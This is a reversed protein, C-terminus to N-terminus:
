YICIFYKSRSTDSHRQLGNTSSFFILFYKKKKVDANYFACYLKEKLSQEPQQAELAPFPKWSNNSGSVTHVLRQIIDQSYSSNKSHKNQCPHYHTCHSSSDYVNKQSPLTQLLKKNSFINQTALSSHTVSSENEKMFWRIRQLFDQFSHISSPEKMDHCHELTPPLQCTEKKPFTLTTDQHTDNTKQISGVSVVASDLFPINKSSEMCTEMSSSSTRYNFDHHLTKSPPKSAYETTRSNFQWEHQPSTTYPPQQTFSSTNILSPEMSHNSPEPCEEPQCQFSRLHPPCYLSSANAQCIQTAHMGNDKLTECTVTDDNATQLPTTIKEHHTQCQKTLTNEEQRKNCGKDHKSRLRPKGGHRENKRHAKTGNPVTETKSPNNGAHSDNTEKRREQKPGLAGLSNRPATSQHYFSYLHLLAAHGSTSRLCRAPSCHPSKSGHPHNPRDAFCVLKWLLDFGRFARLEAELKQLLGYSDTIHNYELRIWVPLFEQRLRDPRPYVFLRSDQSNKQNFCAQGISKFLAEAGILRIRNHSLHLEELASSQTQILEALALAGNDSICNKYVKLIRLRLYPSYSIFWKALREVGKCTLQNESLDLSVFFVVDSAVIKKLQTSTAETAFAKSNYLTSQEFKQVKRSSGKLCHRSSFPMNSSSALLSFISAELLDILHHIDNDRLSVNKLNVHVNCSFSVQHNWQSELPNMFGSAENTYNGLGERSVKSGSTRKKQSSNNLFLSNKFRKIQQFSITGDSNCWGLNFSQHMDQCTPPPLTVCEPSTPELPYCPDLRVASPPWRPYCSLSLTNTSFSEDMHCGSSTSSCPKTQVRNSVFSDSHQGHGTSHYSEGREHGANSSMSCSDTRDNQLNSQVMQIHATRGSRDKTKPM